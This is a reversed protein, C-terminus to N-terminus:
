ESEGPTPARRSGVAAALLVGVAGALLDIPDWERGPVVRQAGELLIAWGLTLAAAVLGAKSWRGSVQLSRRVLLATILFVAAHVVKDIWAELRWPLWNGTEPLVAGPLLMAVAVLM